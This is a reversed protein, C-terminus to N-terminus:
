GTGVSDHEWRALTQWDLTLRRQRPYESVLARVDQLFADALAQQCLDTRNM